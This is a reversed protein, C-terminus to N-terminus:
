SSSKGTSAVTSAINLRQMIAQMVMPVIVLHVDEVKKM